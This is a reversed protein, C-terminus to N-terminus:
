ITIPSYSSNDLNYGLSDNLMYFGFRFEQKYTNGILDCYKIGFKLFDNTREGKPLGLRISFTVEERAMAYYQSLNKSIHYKKEPYASSIFYGELKKEPYVPDLQINTASEKGINILGVELILFEEEREIRNDGLVINFYPVVSARTSIETLLKTNLMDEQRKEEKYIEFEKKWQENLKNSEENKKTRKSLKNNHIITYIFTALSILIPLCTEFNIKKLEVLLMNM